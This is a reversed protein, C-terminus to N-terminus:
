AARKVPVLNLRGVVRCLDDLAADTIEDRRALSTLFEFQGARQLAFAIPRENTTLFDLIRQRCTPSTEGELWHLVEGVRYFVRANSRQRWPPGSNRFRWNLASQISIQMWRCFDKSSIWAYPPLSPAERPSLRSRITLVPM